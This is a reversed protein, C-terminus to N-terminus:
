KVQKELAARIARLETVMDRSLQVAEETRATTRRLARLVFWVLPILLVVPLLTVVASVSSSPEDDQRPPHSTTATPATQM